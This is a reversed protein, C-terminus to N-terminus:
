QEQTKRQILTRFREGLGFLLTKLQQRRRLEEAPSQSALARAFNDPEGAEALTRSLNQLKVLGLGAAEGSEQLATFCVHATIDAEGPEALVNELATHRRYGMLTGKPFSFLERATYGYDITLVYGRQLHAAIQDMWRLADLNVEVWAGEEVGSAYRALYAAAGGEVPPGEIWTFREEALSVLMQKFRRGRKVAVHVPLADFFENSFVVGTFPPPWKGRGAELPFYRFEALASAMEGRGAGLEVVAFDAPHGLEEYLQRIRQSILIGFVPQIQEATYYDGERGFPDRQRRYYGYEPHYLSVEMFRHFSVPGAQSIERALVTGAATM